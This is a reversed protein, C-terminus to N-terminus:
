GKRTFVTYDQANVNLFVYVYFVTKIVPPEKKILKFVFLFIGSPVRNAWALLSAKRDNSSASM